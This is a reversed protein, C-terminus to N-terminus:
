VHYNIEFTTQIYLLLEVELIKLYKLTGDINRNKLLLADSYDCDFILRCKIQITNDM